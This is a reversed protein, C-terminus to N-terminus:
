SYSFNFTGGSLNADASTEQKCIKFQTPDVVNTFTVVTENGVGGYPVVVSAPNVHAGSLLRTGFSTAHRELDVREVPLLQTRRERLGHRDRCAGPDPGLLSWRPGCFSPGGNVSFTAALQGLQRQLQRQGLM